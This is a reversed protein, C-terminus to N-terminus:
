PSSIKNTIEEKHKDNDNDHDKHKQKQEKNQKYKRKNAEKKLFSYLMAKNQEQNKEDSIALKVGGLYGGAGIKKKEGNIIAKDGDGQM